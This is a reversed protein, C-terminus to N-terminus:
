GKLKLMYMKIFRELEVKYYKNVELMNRSDGDGGDIVSVDGRM